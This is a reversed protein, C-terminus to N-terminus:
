RCVEQDASGTLAEQFAKRFWDRDVQVETKRAQYRRASDRMCARCARHGDGPTRYTNEPTFPHGNVCALKRAPYGRGSNEQATVPELHSPNVCARHPCSTGGTCSQDETHCTHDLTMGDPIPGVLIAYVLRHAMGAYRGRGKSVEGYGHRNRKGPWIWCEEPEGITVRALVRAVLEAPITRTDSGVRHPLIANTTTTNASDTRHRAPRIRMKPAPRGRALRRDRAWNPESILEAM